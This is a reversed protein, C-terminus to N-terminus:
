LEALWAFGATAIMEHGGQFITVRVTGSRRRFLVRKEGYAEDVGDFELGVPVAKKEVFHAIQEDSLRDAPSALVNFARLSHSVPVSGTHGDTIGANIDLLLGAANHLHALPSRKGAEAEAPTGDAPEGGCSSAIMGAYRNGRALSEYYWAKIDVIPVWASVGAWVHPARGAMLLSCHGGGSGGLLYIRRDDIKAQGRAFDVASLIDAVVFDSGCAQPTSNQGRFNPYIMAWGRRACEGAFVQSNKDSYSSSWAHLGVLLPVPESGRSPLWMAPQMTGDASSRYHIERVIGSM